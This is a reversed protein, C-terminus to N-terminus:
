CGFKHDHNTCLGPRCLPNGTSQLKVLSHSEFEASLDVDPVTTGVNAM